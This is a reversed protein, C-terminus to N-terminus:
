LMGTLQTVLPLIHEKMKISYPNTRLIGSRRLSCQFTNAHLSAINTLVKSFLERRDNESSSFARSQPPEIWIFYPYDQRIAKTPLQEKQTMVNRDFRNMLWSIVRHYGEELNRSKRPFVSIINNNPVIVVFKPLITQDRISGVFNNHMQSVINTDASAKKNNSFGLVEYNEKIYHNNNETEMFFKTFSQFGFDDSLVWVADVGKM